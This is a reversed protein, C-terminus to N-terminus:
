QPEFRINVTMFLAYQLSNAGRMIGCASAPYTDVPLNIVRVLPSVAPTYGQMGVMQLTRILVSHEFESICDRHIPLFPVRLNYHVVTSLIPDAHPAAVILYVPTSASSLTVTVYALTHSAALTRMDAVMCAGCVIRRQQLAQLVHVQEDSGCFLCRYEM